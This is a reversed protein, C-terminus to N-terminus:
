CTSIAAPEQRVPLAGARRAAAARHRRGRPDRRRAPHHARVPQARLGAAGRVHRDRAGGRLQRLGVDGRRLDGRGIMATLLRAETIRRAWEERLETRHFRLHEVLERLLAANSVESTAGIAMDIDNKVDEDGSLMTTVKAHMATPQRGTGATTQRSTAISAWPPAQRCRRRCIRGAFEPSCRLPRDSAPWAVVTAPQAPGYLANAAAAMGLIPPAEKQARRRAM